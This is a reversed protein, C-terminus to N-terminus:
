SLKVKKDSLVNKLTSMVFKIISLIAFLTVVVSLIIFTYVDILNLQIFNLNHASSQFHSAGRHRIVYEVWYITLEHPTMPRDNYRKSIAKANNEYRPDTLLKRLNEQVLEVTISDFNMLIGYNLDQAKIMNMKQDAYIPIGLVPIGEVLAETTGLLGGHTIFLKVNPHALVDRQPIWASIMVNGPNKPLTDNEYKWLVKQKLKGFANVFAERQEVPWDKGKIISGMSFLIVGEKASDLFDQIEIPLAKPLSVHIGGIEIMNAVFPRISSTSFHHNILVLSINKMQDDFTRGNSM